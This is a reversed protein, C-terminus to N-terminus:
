TSKKIQQAAIAEPSGARRKWEARTNSDLGSADFKWTIPDGLHFDQVWGAPWGDTHICYAGSKSGHKDTEVQYRHKQGDLILGDRPPTIGNSEMFSIVQREIEYTDFHM